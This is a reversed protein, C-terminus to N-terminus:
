WGLARAAAEMETTGHATREHLLVGGFGYRPLASASSGRAVIQDILTTELEIRPWAAHLDDQRERAPGSALHFDALVGTRVLRPLLGRREALGASTHLAIADWVQQVDAEDIGCALLVNAAIDAGEIEFRERGPAKDSVGMEHLVTAGFLLDESLEALM